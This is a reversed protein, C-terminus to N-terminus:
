CTAEVGRYGELELVDDLFKVEEILSSELAIAHAFKISM